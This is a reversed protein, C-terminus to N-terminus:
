NPQVTSKWTISPDEHCSHLLLLTHSPYPHPISKTPQTLSPMQSTPGPSPPHGPPQGPVLCAQPVHGPVPSTFPSPHGTQCPCAPGRTSLARPRARACFCACACLFVKIQHQEENKTFFGFFCALILFKALYLWILRQPDTKISKSRKGGLYLIKVSWNFFGIFVYVCLTKVLSEKTRKRASEHAKTRGSKAGSPRSCFLPRAPDILPLPGNKWPVAPFVSAM